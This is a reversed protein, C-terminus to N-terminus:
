DIVYGELIIDVCERMKKIQIEQTVNLLEKFLAVLITKLNNYDIPKLRKTKIAQSILDFISEWSREFERVIIKYIQPYQIFIDDIHSFDLTIDPYVCIINKLKEIVDIKENQAIMIQKERMQLFVREIVLNIVREKNGYKKYITKKSIKLEASLEDLTFKIGKNNFLEIAKDVFLDKSM